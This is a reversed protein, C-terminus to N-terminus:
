YEGFIFTDLLNSLNETIDLYCIHEYFQQLGLVILFKDMFNCLDSTSDLDFFDMCSSLDETSDLDLHTWLVPSTCLVTLYHTWFVASTM